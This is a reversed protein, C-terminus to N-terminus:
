EDRQKKEDILLRCVLYQRSQLESTHEESRGVALVGDLLEGSPPLGALAGAGAAEGLVVAELLPDLVRLEPLHGVDAPTARDDDARFLTPYPLLSSRAPRPM